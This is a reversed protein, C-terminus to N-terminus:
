WQSSRFMVTRSILEQFGFRLYLRHAPLNRQDVALTLCQCSSRRTCSVAETLMVQALNHGRASPVLGMYTLETTNGSKLVSLLLAGVPRGSQLLVKWHRVDSAGATRHGRIVDEIDRLSGLEPCDLSDCYTQTIVDKFLDHHSPSYTLWSTEPPNDVHQAPPDCPLALYILDTLRKFGAQICISQRAADDPDLLVQLLNCRCHFAWRCLRDLAVEPSANEPGTSLKAIKPPGATLVLATRGPHAIFLCAYIPKNQHLLVVQRTLDYDEERSIAKFSQVKQAVSKGSAANALMLALAQDIQLDNVPRVLTAQTGNQATTTPWRDPAIGEDAALPRAASDRGAPPSTM